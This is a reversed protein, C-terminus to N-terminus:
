ENKKLNGLNIARIRLVTVERRFGRMKQSHTGKKKYLKLIKEEKTQEEVTTIVSANPIMPRGLLTESFDAIM